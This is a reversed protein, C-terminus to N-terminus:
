LRAAPQGSRGLDWDASGPLDLVDQASPDKTGTRCARVPPARLVLYGMCCRGM